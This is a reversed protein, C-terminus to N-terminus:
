FVVAIVVPKVGYLIGAVEPLKGFRVYAWAVALVICAAPLIFCIGAVLLGSWGARKHGIHIAMETSNAGPILNTAALLDLLDDGRGCSMTEMMAIHAAPGFAISGVTQSSILFLFSPGEVIKLFSRDTM